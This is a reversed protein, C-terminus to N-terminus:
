PQVAGPSRAVQSTHRRKRETSWIEVDALDYLVRRGIKIYVPGSGDLRAKDLFGKSIGLYVAAERVSLKRNSSVAKDAADAATMAALLSSLQFRSM